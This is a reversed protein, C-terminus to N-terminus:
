GHRTSETTIRCYDSSSSRKHARFSTDTQLFPLINRTKRLPPKEGIIYPPTQIDEMQGTETSWTTKSEMLMRRAIMGFDEKLGFEWSIWLMKPMIINADRAVEVISAMWGKIWPTLLPTVDFYHTLVALDYLSDVSLVQPIISFNAHSINLFVQMPDPRDDKLEVVWDVTDDHNAEAFGGYLMRDFVPSARSLARSCVLFEIYNSFKEDTQDTSGVKLRLDGRPDVIVPKDSM